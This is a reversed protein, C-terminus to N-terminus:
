ETIEDPEPAPAPEPSASPQSATAIALAEDGSKGERLAKQLADYDVTKAPMPPLSDAVTKAPM